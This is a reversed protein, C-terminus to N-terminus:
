RRAGGARSTSACRSRSRRLLLYRRVRVRMVIASNRAFFVVVEDDPLLEPPENLVDFPNAAIVALGEDRRQNRPGAIM